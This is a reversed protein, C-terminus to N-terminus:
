KSRRVCNVMVPAMIWPGASCNLDPVRVSNRPTVNVTLFDSKEGNADKLLPDYEPKSSTTREKGLQYMATACTGGSFAASEPIEVYTLVEELEYNNKMAYQHLEFVTLDQPICDNGCHCVIRAGSERAVADHTEITGRFFDTEGTIDAYHVGLEACLQILTTGYREFPGSTSLVLRTQQVISRLNEKEAATTCCLDAILIPPPLTESAACLEDLVTRAREKNRACAAWTPADAGKRVLYEAALKGTFGTVGFLIIDYTKAPITM